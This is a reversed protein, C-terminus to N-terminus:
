KDNAPINLFQLCKGQANPNFIDWKQPHLWHTQFRVCQQARECRANACLVSIDKNPLLTVM